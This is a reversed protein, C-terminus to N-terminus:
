SRRATASWPSRESSRLPSGRRACRTCRSRRSARSRRGPSSRPARGTDACASRPTAARDVHGDRVLHYMPSGHSLEVGFVQTATDTHTDFHLLGLPGHREACARIDPEAISHDGGLVVPITGADVAEGVTRLIAAHSAAPDAPIVPADGFDVVRLEAMADIGAELHPGPLGGAARIARPGNRAGPTESVLEDMAAGIIAVDVGALEAADETYPMGAYTLLGAHDPKDGNPWRTTPDLM